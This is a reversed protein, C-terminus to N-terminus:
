KQRKHPSNYNPSGTINGMMQLSVCPQEAPVFHGSGLIWYFFFNKYSTVFGKTTSDDNGCYLSFAGLKFIREVRGVQGNYITVNIGKALLEDVEDIRPKMFDGAMAPFILGVQGGWTVNGPIIKLKKRIPGNMLKDLDVPQTGADATSFKKTSLYKSYRDIGLSGKLEESTTGGIPDNETDLLFNYFDRSNRWTTAADEYKGAALQQKIKLALSNSENLGKNDMRSLEKLLPAWSFCFDEPSIWSDGLAVGGLQLKLEGAEIARIASVGLTAAFKGGYSEAFIYLASKQLTKNGNFLEKLLTTLDTAAEEDTGVVLNEDGVYSFGTGVPNDVFLLDAKKLWTSNRPQLHGDLPGIEIFNGFAVGSSGPGGQLWLLIPWPKSPDEVRNPSKYLWWFLHAKPRVEVYGWQESGDDTGAAFGLYGHLLSSSILLLLFLLMHKEM